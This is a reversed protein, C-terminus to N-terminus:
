MFFRETLPTMNRISIRQKGGYEFVGQSSITFCYLIIQYLNHNSIETRIHIVRIFRNRRGPKGLPASLQFVFNFFILLDIKLM